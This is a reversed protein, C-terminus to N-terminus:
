FLLIPLLLIPPPNKQDLITKKETTSSPPAKDDYTFDHYGRVLTDALPFNDLAAEHALSRVHERAHHESRTSQAAFARDTRMGNAIFRRIGAGAWLGAPIFIPCGTPVTACVGFEWLILQGGKHCDYRGLPTLIQWTGPDVREAMDDSRRPYGLQLTAASFISTSCPYQADPKHALFATRQAELARYASRCYTLLLSVTGFSVLRKAATTALTGFLALADLARSGGIADYDGPSAQNFGVGEGGSIAPLSTVNAHRQRLSAAELDLLANVPEVIKTKWLPTTAGGALFTVVRRGAVILKVRRGTWNLHQLNFRSGPGVVNQSISNDTPSSLPTSSCNPRIHVVSRSSIGSLAERRIGLTTALLLRLRHERRAALRAKDRRTQSLGTLDRVRGRGSVRTFVPRPRRWLPEEPLPDGAWPLSPDHLALHDQLTAELEFELGELERCPLRDIGSTWLIPHSM